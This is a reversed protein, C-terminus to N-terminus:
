LNDCVLYLYLGKPFCGSELARRLCRHRIKLPMYALDLLYHINRRLIAMVHITVAMAATGPRKPWPVVVVVTVLSKVTPGMPTPLVSVTCILTTFRAALADFPVAADQAPLMVNLLVAPLAMPVDVGKVTVAPWIKEALRGNAFSV